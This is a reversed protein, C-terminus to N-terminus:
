HCRCPWAHETGHLLLLLAAQLLLWVDPTAALRLSLLCFTSAWAGAASAGASAGSPMLARLVPCAGLKSKVLAFPDDGDPSHCSKVRRPRIPHMLPLWSAIVSAPWPAPAGKATCASLGGQCGRCGM